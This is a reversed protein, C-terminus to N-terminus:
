AEVGGEVLMGKIKDLHQIFPKWYRKHMYVKRLERLPYYAKDIVCWEPRNLDVDPGVPVLRGKAAAEEITQPESKEEIMKKEEITEALREARTTSSVPSGQKQSREQFPGKEKSIPKVTLGLVKKIAEKASIEGIKVKELLDKNDALRLLQSIYGKSKHLEDAIREQTLRLDKYLHEIFEALEGVNVRGRLINLKASHLLADEKTGHLVYAQILPKNHKKATELRNEGDALWLVGDKDEFVYIPQIIGESKVSDEFDRPNKFRSHLRGEPIKIDDVKVWRLTPM